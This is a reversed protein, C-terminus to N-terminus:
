DIVHPLGLPSAFFHPGARAWPCTLTLMQARPERIGEGPMEVGLSVQQGVRGADRVSSVPKPACLGLVNEWEGLRTGIVDGPQMVRLLPVYFRHHDWRGSASESCLLWDAVTRVSSHLCNAHLPQRWSSCPGEFHLSFMFFEDATM